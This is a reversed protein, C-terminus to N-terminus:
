CKKLISKEPLFANEEIWFIAFVIKKKVKNASFVCIRFLESKPCFGHVHVGKAFKSKKDSRWFDIKQDLFCENRDLIDFLSKSVQNRLLFACLHFFKSNLCFGHVLGKLVKWKKKRYFPTFNCSIFSILNEGVHGYVTLILPIKFILVIVTNDCSCSFVHM